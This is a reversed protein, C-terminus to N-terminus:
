FGGIRTTRSRFPASVRSPIESESPRSFDSESSRSRSSRERWPFLPTTIIPRTTLRPLTESSQSSDTESGSGSDSPLPDVPRSVPAQPRPAPAQPGPAEPGPAPDQPRPVPAQPSGTSPNGYKKGILNTPNVATGRPDFRGRPPGGRRLEFHLHPGTGIGTNGLTAITQGQTVTQGVRVDLRQCHYYRTSFGNQHDIVVANGATGASGAFVVVGGDAAKIPSNRPGGYDLAPHNRSGVRINRAGFGSTVPGQAPRILTGRAQSLVEGVLVAALILFSKVQMIQNSSHARAGLDLKRLCLRARANNCTGTDGTCRLV